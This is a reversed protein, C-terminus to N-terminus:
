EDDGSLAAIQAELANVRAEWLTKIEFHLKVIYSAMAVIAVGMWQIVTMSTAAEM